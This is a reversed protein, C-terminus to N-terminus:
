QRLIMRLMDRRQAGLAMRIGIERTRQTVSYSVVGGIGVATLLLALGAFASLLISNFRQSGVSRALIEEMTRMRATPVEPDVAHVKAAVAQSVSLPDVSTRVVLSMWLFPSQHFPVYMESNSPLSLGAHKVDGVVGVIERSTSENGHVRDVITIRQGIPDENPWLRKAMSQNII